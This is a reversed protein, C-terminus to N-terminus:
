QAARYHPTPKEVRVVTVTNGPYEFVTFKGKPELVRLKIGLAWAIVNLNDWSVAGKIVANNTVYAHADQIVQQPGVMGALAAQRANHPGGAEEIVEFLDGQGQAAVLNLGHDQLVEAQIQTTPDLVGQPRAHSFKSANTPGGFPKLASLVRRGGLEAVEKLVDGGTKTGPTLNTLDADTQDGNALFAIWRLRELNFAEATADSRTVIQPRHDNTALIMAVDSLYTMILDTVHETTVGQANQGQATALLARAMEYVTGRYIAFRPQGAVAAFVHDRQGAAQPTIQHNDPLGTAFPTDQDYAQDEQVNTGQQAMEEAALPHVGFEHALMGLLRGRSQQEFFWPSLTIQVQDDVVRVSALQPDDELTILTDKNQLFQQISPTAQLGDIVAQAKSQYKQDGSVNAFRINGVRQVTPPGAVVAPRAVLQVPGPAFRVARAGMTDAEHELGADDNIPAGRMQMTPRVRGQKQQVVHWAEHPLHREQGPAVHIDTGQAYAHAQLAAPKGSNRHVRVDDLSLGSLAEVGTKLGDPLGTDNISARRAAATSLMDGLARQAVVTPGANLAQSTAQLRQVAPSDTFGAAAAARAPAPAAVPTKRLLDARDTM